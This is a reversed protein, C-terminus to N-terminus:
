LLYWARFIMTPYQECPTNCGGCANVVERSNKYVDVMKYDTERLDCLMNDPYKFLCPYVKCDPVIFCSYQGAVCKSKYWKDGKRTYAYGVIDLMDLKPAFRPYPLKKINNNDVNGYYGAAQERTYVVGIDLENSLARMYDLGKVTHESILYEISVKLNNTKILKLRKISEIARDWSYPIRTFSEHTKKDGELSISVMIRSNAKSLGRKIANELKEPKSGNTNISLVELNKAGIEMFDNIEPRLTLEGGTYSTWMLKNRKLIYELEVPSIEPVDSDGKCWINCSLCRYNCKNTLMITAKSMSPIVIRKAVVGVTKLTNKLYNVNYHGNNDSPTYEKRFCGVYDCFAVYKEKIPSLGYKKCLENISKRSHKSIHEDKYATFWEFIYWHRRSYDPTAIVVDGGTKLVRSIESIVKEANNIHELVEICIVNDFHKDPFQLNDASMNVTTLTPVKSKIFELKDNNIDLAVAEPYKTIIPSAGSGIDLLSDSRPIMNWVLKAISHKWWKQIPNGNYYSNWDYDRSDPNRETAFTWLSNATFNWIMVIAVAFCMSLMYWLGVIDTLVYTIGFNLAIGIGSVVGFKIYRNYVKDKYKNQNDKFTWISNLTFNSTIVIAVAIAMSAMYWLSAYETLIYTISFHLVSGIGGVICFKIFRNYRNILKIITEYIIVGVLM